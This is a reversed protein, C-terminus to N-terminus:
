VRLRLGAPLAEDLLRAEEPAALPVPERVLRAARAGAPMTELRRALRERLAGDLDRERDGTARAIQSVAFAYGDARPWEATLLQEVWSAATARPVVCNLPGALPVRAGLRALAWLEQESARGRVAEGVLQQGLDARLTAVLRECSAIAQWMERREQPGPRPGKARGRSLLAPAVLDLLYQQQRATLGGAIRKWLNWWEARCQVARPHRLGGSLVRYLRNVRLDDGPDGFGPRLLFGALNTWRTEHEPSRGRAPEREWLVDWLPRIAALPWADRGAGLESELRRTLTVPDDDGEFAASLHAGAAVIREGEVVLTAPLSVAADPPMKAGVTDRLRFELRWRHDTTRSRCWLELTGIETLRVELHVPLTAEHLKRGFRLVTRIPPLPTLDDDGVAVIEGAREETRDTATYLPFAVPRNAVLEFEPRTIELAEGEEMGRPVLCLAERPDDGLGLYYTRAAGSGIRVGVGRRVLGFYAAGRAVALQLSRAELVAPRWGDEGHWAAIVDVLRERVVAPELAGGNFLLGAPRVLPLDPQGAAARQRYLFDAVHRTIEQEAAFPLGWEGGGADARRRPRAGMPVRPFFGDLVTTEVEARTLTAALAGGVVARGRGPVSVRVEGTTPDGLMREKAARCASVLGHFRQADLREGAPLLRAEMARALAVDINDGGLLLHEGVAVRELGLEGRSARAGILSLDTTGGGVDIVLVLPVATLCARWDREHTELWAYFAAQPEELLAVGPLRAAHAAALTLERAVEDFSAPVTLVIEQAALPEPFSADWAERLHTLIRASAEVPSIRPVGEGASWPLIAATRDVAAHCLWSKASAVLRGPVRAGQDRALEGVCFDRGSGWPLDLSGAPLDHAGALYVFSPLTARARVEGASVLQPVSFVEIARRGSTDVYACATNTTGLDIGVVFRSAAM